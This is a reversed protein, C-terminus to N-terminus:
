CSACPPHITRGTVQNRVMDEVSCDSAKQNATRTGSGAVDCLRSEAFIVSESVQQLRSKPASDSPKQGWQWGLFPLMQYCSARVLRPSRMGFSGSAALLLHDNLNRAVSQRPRDLLIRGHAGVSQWYGCDGDASHEGIQDVIERAGGLDDIDDVSLDLLAAIPEDARPPM